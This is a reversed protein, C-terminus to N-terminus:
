CYGALKGLFKMFVTPRFAQMILIIRVLRAGHECRRGLEGIMQDVSAQLLVYPLTSESALRPPEDSEVQAFVGFDLHGRFANAGPEGISVPRM